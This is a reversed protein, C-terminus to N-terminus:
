YADRGDEKAPKSSFSAFHRCAGLRRNGDPQQQEAAKPPHVQAAAESASPVM